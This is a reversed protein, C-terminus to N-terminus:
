SVALVLRHSPLLEPPEGSLQCDRTGSGVALMHGQRHAGAGYHGGVRRSDATSPRDCGDQLNIPGNPIGDRRSSLGMPLRMM